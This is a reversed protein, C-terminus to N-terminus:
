FKWYGFKKRAKLNRIINRPKKKMKHMNALAQEVAELVRQSSKGDTYPHTYQGFENIANMLSAPRSLGHEIASELQSADNINHLYSTPAENNVTVVPKRLLLYDTIMSSNDGLMLDAEILHPSLDDTEVFELNDHEIRKYAAVTEQAMKPHFTVKWKWKLNHSLEQIYPLLALAQSMRPSFTSSFLIVPKNNAQKEASTDLFYPDMKCYGTEIVQFHKHKEALEQFTATSSKGHTCYLDFCDRIIFHYNLNDKKRKKFGVFGHFIGVKLGPVFSPVMNGPVFVALPNFAIAEDITKLIRENSKFFSFNVHKDEVFWAVEGGQRLIESQLPRLVQFSYNESIYFLYKKM